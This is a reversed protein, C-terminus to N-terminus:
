ILKCLCIGGALPENSILQKVVNSVYYLTHGGGGGGRRENHRTDIQKNWLEAYNEHMM